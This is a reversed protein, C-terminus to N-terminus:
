TCGIKRGCKKEKRSKNKRHKINKHKCFRCAWVNSACFHPAKELQLDTMLKKANREVFAKSVKWVKSWLSKTMACSENEVLQFPSKTHNM